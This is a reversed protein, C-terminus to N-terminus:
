ETSNQHKNSRIFKKKKKFLIFRVINNKIILQCFFYVLFLDFSGLLLLFIMKRGEFRFFRSLFNRFRILLGRKKFILMIWEQVFM